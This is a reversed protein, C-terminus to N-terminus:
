RPPEAPPADEDPLVDAVDEGVGVGGVSVTGRPPAKWYQVQCSWSQFAGGRPSTLTPSIRVSM